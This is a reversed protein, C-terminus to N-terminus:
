HKLSSQKWTTFSEAILCWLLLAHLHRPRCVLLICRHSFQRCSKVHVALCGVQLLRLLVCFAFTLNRINWLSTKLDKFWLRPPNRVHSPSQQKNKRYAHNRPAPFTARHNLCVASQLPNLSLEWCGCWTVSELPDSTRKQGGPDGPMCMTCLGVHLCLVRVRSM